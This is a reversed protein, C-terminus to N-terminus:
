LPATPLRITFTSGDGPRSVVSIDGGLLQVLDRTVSLGLGAGGAERTTKQSVQWFPDFIHDLHEPEIGRGTDRVSLTMMQETVDAMLRIRGEDTFKVANDLLNLLIQRLKRHDAELEVARDLAPLELAVGKRQALPEVIAAVDHLVERLDVREYCPEERGAELRALTLIQEILYLLHQASSKIRRVQELQGNNLPGSIAAEMLDAYGIVANLPTRLEHSMVALFDSKAQNARVAEQYLVANDIAAAARAALECAFVLDDQQYRKGSEAAALTIAGLVHGRAALPAVMASRLGLRQLLAFYEPDPAADRLLAEPVDPLVFPQGSQVVEASGVPPPLEPRYRDGLQRALDARAPDAHVIAVRHLRDDQLFDVACWDAFEPVALRATREVTQGYNLSGSLLRSAEGLFYLQRDRKRRETDDETVGVVHIVTGAADRVPSGRSRLWRISGDPRRIRFEVTTEAGRGMQGLADVVRPLDEEHVSSLFGQPDHELEVAPRGWIAEYAPSVYEIRTLGPDVIWFVEGVHDALLRFRAESERVREEAQRRETLDHMVSAFGFLEGAEDRVASLVAEAWFRSGDMRVRWGEDVARGTATARQIMAEPIRQERAEPPYFIGYERGEVASATFGTVRRAGENWTSIRGEPDLLFIAYDRVGDILLRFRREAAEAARRREEERALELERTRIRRDTEHKYLAAEIAGRLERENFPKVLYGFPSTTRARRITEEDAYATLYVVPTGFRSAIAEAAEIGDMEGQLRIDMLILSPQLTDAKEMAEEGSVATGVVEYGLRELTSTLDAAVIRQDEVILIRRKESM